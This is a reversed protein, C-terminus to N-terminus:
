SPRNIIIVYQTFQSGSSVVVNVTNNGVALNVVAPTGSNVNVGNVTITNTAGGPLTPTVNVTTKGSQVAATYSLTASVFPPSLQINSMGIKVTLNSLYYQAMRNITLNYTVATGVKPTVVISLANPGVALTANYVSGALPTGNVTISATSDELTMNVAVASVSNEVNATYTTTTNIFTPTLPVNTTGNMVSLASLYPSCKTVNVTYTKTVGSKSKVVVNVPTVNGTLNVIAQGSQLAAGNVTVTSNADEVTPIVTVNTVTSAVYASYTLTNKDFPPTLPLVDNGNKVVLGSLNNSEKTITLTYTTLQGVVPQVTITVTNVGSQIQIPASVGGSTVAVNNVKIIAASDMATPKITVSAVDAGVMASYATTTPAFTPTYNKVVNNNDTVIFNTLTNPTPDAEFVQFDNISVMKPNANYGGNSPIALKVFRASAPYFTRVGSGSMTDALNWNQNDVSVLLNIQTNAYQPGFGLSTMDAISWKSIKYTVGLDVTMFGPLVCCMWRSCPYNVGIFGDVARSPKYPSVYNSATAPRNLALNITGM